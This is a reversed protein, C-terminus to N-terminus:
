VTVRVVFAARTPIPTQTLSSASHERAKPEAKPYKTLPPKHTSRVGCESLHDDLDQAEL